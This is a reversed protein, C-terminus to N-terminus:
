KEWACNEWARLPWPLTVDAADSQRQLHLVSGSDSGGQRRLFTRLHSDDSASSGGSHPHRLVQSHSTQKQFFHLNIYSYKHM